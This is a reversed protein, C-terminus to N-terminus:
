DSDELFGDISHRINHEFALLNHTVLEDGEWVAGCSLAFDTSDLGEPEAGTWQFRVMSDPTKRGLVVREGPPDERKAM